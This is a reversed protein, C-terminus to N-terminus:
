PNEWVLTVRPIPGPVWLRIHSLPDDQRDKNKAEVMRIYTPYVRLGENMYHLSLWVEGNADPVVDTLTIRVPSASEWKAKGQLIFSKPRDLAYIVIPLGSEKLRAVPRAMPLRGWRETAVPSRCVVWGVNYWTCFQALSADSLEDLPRGNLKGDRLGCFSFEMGADHDFGGIYARDTHFPLLATWNWGPRTDTTDDWLIRADVTTHERLAAIVEEQDASFGIMLPDARLGAAGALPRGPGDAWGALVLGLVAVVAGAPALWLRDLLKWVGLGAPLAVIGATLPILREAADTPMRPWAALIRAITVTVLGVAVLLGVVARNGSRWLVILGVVGTALLFGGWPVYGILTGYDGPTGLIAEWTPLPIHDSPSPQRLWWYRAWDVLWWLNPALGAVLIGALGLHWALERRPAYVLYYGILVPTLGVWVVPHAYWGAAAVGALVLWSDVGYWRAYRGLWPVLVIVGLGAMLFDIEGDEILRCVPWSWGLVVGGAGTLVAAGAPLGAGRAALVVAVPILLLCVFLGIKYVGPRFNGGSLVLFLEAPRCGGDFVPTKPYGAQFGPDYCTTTAQDHFARAGLIGHYLHLPHRGSLVPRDDLVAAFSRDPGFLALALGAQAFVLGVVGLLWLPRHRFGDTPMEDM